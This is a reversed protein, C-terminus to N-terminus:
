EGGLMKVFTNLNSLIAVVLTTFICTIVAIKIQNWEKVPKEKISKIEIGQNRVEDSLDDIKENQNKNQEAILKINTNMEHLLEQNKEVKDIRKHASQVSQNIAEIQIAQQTHEECVPM